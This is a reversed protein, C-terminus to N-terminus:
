PDIDGTFGFKGTGVHSVESQLSIRISRDEHIQLSLTGFDTKRSLKLTLSVSPTSFAYISGSTRALRTVTKMDMVDSELKVSFDTYYETGTDGKIKYVSVAKATISGVKFRIEYDTSHKRSTQGYVPAEGTSSRLRAGFITGFELRIETKRDAKFTREVYLRIGNRRIDLLTRTDTYIGFSSDVHINCELEALSLHQCAKVLVDFRVHRDSVSRTNYTWGMDLPDEPEKASFDFGLKLTNLDLVAGGGGKYKVYFNAFPIKATFRTTDAEFSSDSLRVKLKSLSVADRNVKFKVSFTDSASFTFTSACLTGLACFLLTLSILHKRSM